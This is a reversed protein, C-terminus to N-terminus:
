KKFINYNRGEGIYDQYFNYGYKELIKKYDNHLNKFIIYCNKPMKELCNEFLKISFPNYFYFYNFKNMDSYELIDSNVVETNTIDLLKLNNNCISYDEKSIEIGTIHKFPFLSFVSLCFGRGCGIDIISDAKTINLSKILNYLNHCSPSYNSYNEINDNYKILNDYRKGSKNVLEEFFIYKKNETFNLYEAINKKYKESIYGELTTKKLIIPYETKGFNDGNCVIYDEGGIYFWHPYSLWNYDVTEFNVLVERTNYYNELDDSEAFYIKYIFGSPHLKSKKRISFLIHFKNNIEYLNHLLHGKDKSYNVISDFKPILQKKNKFFNFLYKGWFYDKDEEDRSLFSTFLYEDKKNVYEKFLFDNFEYKKIINFERLDITEILYNKHTFSQDQINEKIEINLFCINDKVNIDRVWASLYINELYDLNDIKIFKSTSELLNFNNDLESIFIAYKTINEKQMFKKSGILYIKKNYLFIKPNRLGLIDLKKHFSYM